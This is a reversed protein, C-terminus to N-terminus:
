SLLNCDSSYNHYKFNESDLYSNEAFYRRITQYFNVLTEFVGVDNIM